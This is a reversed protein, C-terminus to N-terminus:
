QEQKREAQLVTLMASPAIRKVLLATTQDFQVPACSLEVLVVNVIQLLLIHVSTLQQKDAM